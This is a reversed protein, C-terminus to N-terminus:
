GKMEAAKAKAKKEPAKKKAKEKYKSHGKKKLGKAFPDYPIKPNKCPPKQKTWSYNVRAQGKAYGYAKIVLPHRAAGHIQIWEEGFNFNSGLYGSYCVKVGEHEGCVKGASDIKAGKNWAIIAKGTKGDWLQIDVDKKSLLEIRVNQKGAPITGVTIKANHLIMQDFSGSGADCPRHFNWKFKGLKNGKGMLAKKKKEVEKNVKNFKAKKKTKEKEKKEAKKVAAEKAKGKAAKEKVKKEGEKAKKEAEKAMKEIVSKKGKEIAKKKQKEAAKKAKEKSKKESEKEQKEVIHCKEEVTIAGM